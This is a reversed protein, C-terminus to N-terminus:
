EADSRVVKVMSRFALATVWVGIILFSLVAGDAVSLRFPSATYLDLESQTLLVFQSGTCSTDETATLAGTTGDVAVCKM